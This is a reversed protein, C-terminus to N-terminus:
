FNFIFVQYAFENEAKFIEHTFSHSSGESGGDYMDNVDRSGEYDEELYAASLDRSTDFDETPEIKVIPEM